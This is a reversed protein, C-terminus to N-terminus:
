DGGEGAQGHPRRAPRRAELRARLRNAVGRVGQQDPARDVDDLHAFFVDRLQRNGTASDDRGPSQGAEAARVGYGLEGSWQVRGEYAASGSPSTARM